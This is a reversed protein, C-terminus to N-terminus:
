VIMTVVHGDPVIAPVAPCVPRGSAISAFPLMQMLLPPEPPKVALATVTVVAAGVAVTNAATSAAFAARLAHVTVLM